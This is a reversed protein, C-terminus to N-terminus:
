IRSYTMNKNSLLHLLQKLFKKVFFFHISANMQFLLIKNKNLMIILIYHLIM